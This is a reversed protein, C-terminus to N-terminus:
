YNQIKQGHGGVQCSVEFGMFINTVIKIEYVFLYICLRYVWLTHLFNFSVKSVGDWGVGGCGMLYLMKLNEFLSGINSSKSVDFM